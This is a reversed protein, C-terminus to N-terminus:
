KSGKQLITTIVNGNKSIPITRGDCEGVEFGFCTLIDRLQQFKLPNEGNKRRRSNRRLWDSIIALEQERDKHLEHAAAKRTFEFM